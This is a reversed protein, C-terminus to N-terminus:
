LIYGWGNSGRDNFRGRGGKRCLSGLFGAGVRIGGDKIGADRSGLGLFRGEVSHCLDVVEGVAKAM